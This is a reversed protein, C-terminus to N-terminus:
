CLLLSKSRWSCFYSMLVSHFFFEYRLELSRYDREKSPASLLLTGLQFLVLSALAIPLLYGPAKAVSASAQLNTAAITAETQAVDLVSVSRPRLPPQWSPSSLFFSASNCLSLTSISIHINSSQLLSHSSHSPLQLLTSSSYKYVKPVRRFIM